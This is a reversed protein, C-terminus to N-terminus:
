WGWNDWPQVRLFRLLSYIDELQNQLRVISLPLVSAVTESGGILGVWM